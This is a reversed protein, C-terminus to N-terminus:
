RHLNRDPAHQRDSRHAPKSFDSGGDVSRISEAAGPEPVQDFAIELEYLSDTRAEDVRPHQSTPGIFLGSFLYSLSPHNQWFGILSRLLDPRRLFASDAPTIGGIVVHNGGGTGVHRGDLMFKETGLRPHRARSPLSRRHKGGIGEVVAAPHINVEIVGPDPTVKIVSIRPDFPPSYGEIM